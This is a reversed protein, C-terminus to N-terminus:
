QPSFTNDEEGFVAVLHISSFDELLDNYSKAKSEFTLMAQYIDLSTRGNDGYAPLANAVVDLFKTGNM